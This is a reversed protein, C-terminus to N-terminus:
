EQKFLTYAEPSILSICWVPYFICIYLNETIHIKRYINKCKTWICSFKDWLFVKCKCMKHLAWSLTNTFKPVVNKGTASAFNQAHLPLSDACVDELPNKKCGCTVTYIQPLTAICKNPMLVSDISNWGFGVLNLNTGPAPIMNPCILIVYNSRLIHGHSMKSM